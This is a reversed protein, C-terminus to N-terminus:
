IYLVITFTSTFSLTSFKLIQVESAHTSTNKVMRPLSHITNRGEELSGTEGEPPAIMHTTAGETWRCYHTLWQTGRWRFSTDGCSSSCPYFLAKTDAQWIYLAAASVSVFTVASLSFILTQRMLSELGRLAAWFRVSSMFRLAPVYRMPPTSSSLPSIFREAAENWIMQAAKSQMRKGHMKDEAGTLSCAHEAFGWNHTKNRMKGISCHIFSGPVSLVCSVHLM